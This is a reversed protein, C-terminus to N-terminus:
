VPVTMPKGDNDVARHAMRALAAKTKGRELRQDQAHATLNVEGVPRGTARKGGWPDPFVHKPRRRGKGSQDKGLAFSAM